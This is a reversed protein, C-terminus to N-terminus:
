EYSNFVVCGNEIITVKAFSAFQHSNFPDVALGYIAKNQAYAKPEKAGHGDACPFNVM